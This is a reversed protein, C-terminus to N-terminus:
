FFNLFNFKLNGKAINHELCNYAMNSHAGSMFRVFVNGKRHDFNYELGKDSPIDFYLQNAITKWFTDPNNISKGYLDRYSPLGRVHAGALLPAPPQFFDEEAETELEFKTQNNIFFDSM